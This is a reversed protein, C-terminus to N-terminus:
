KKGNLKELKIRRLEKETYFYNDFYDFDNYLSGKNIFGCYDHPMSNKECHLWIAPSDSDLDTEILFIYYSKNKKFVTKGENIYEKKCYAFDGEKM